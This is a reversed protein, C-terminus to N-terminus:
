KKRKMKAEPKYRYLIIGITIVALSFITQTSLNSVVASGALFKIMFLLSTTPLLAASGIAYAGASIYKLISLSTIEGVINAALLIAYLLLTNNCDINQNGNDLDFFCNFTGSLYDVSQSFQINHFHPRPIYIIFIFLIGILAEFIAEWGRFVFVDINDGKLWKESLILFISLPLNSTVLVISYFIENGQPLSIEPWTEIVIGCIVMFAGMWHPFKLRTHLLLTSLILVLPIYAYSLIVQLSGNLYPAPISSLLNSLSMLMAVIFFKYKPFQNEDQIQFKPIQSEKQNNKKQCIIKQGFLQGCSLVFQYLISLKLYWINM